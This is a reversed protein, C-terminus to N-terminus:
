SASCTIGPELLTDGSAVIPSGHLVSPDRQCVVCDCNNEAIPQRGGLPQLIHDIIASWFHYKAAVECTSIFREILHVLSEDWTKLDTLLRKSSVWWKQHIQYHFKLFDDLGIHMVFLAATPDTELYREVKDDGHFFMFQIFQHDAATIAKPRVQRAMERMEVLAGTKDFVILSEAIMPVRERREIEDGTFTKLQQLSNFTIDLKVGNIVPHNINHCPNDENIAVKVDLDSQETAEGRALSGFIFAGLYRTYQELQKIYQYAPQFREPIALLIESM